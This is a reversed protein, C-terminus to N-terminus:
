EACEFEVRVARQVVPEEVVYRQALVPHPLPRPLRFEGSEVQRVGDCGLPAERFEHVAPRTSPHSSGRM